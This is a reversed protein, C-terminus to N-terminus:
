NEEFGKGHDGSNAASEKARLFAAGSGRLNRANLNVKAQGDGMDGTQATREEVSM